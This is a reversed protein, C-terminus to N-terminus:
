SDPLHPDSPLRSPSGRISKRATGTGQGVWAGRTADSRSTFLAALGLRVTARFWPEVAPRSLRTRRRGDGRHLDLGRAECGRRESLAPAADAADVLWPCL